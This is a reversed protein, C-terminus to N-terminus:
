KEVDGLWAVASADFVPGDKCVRSISRVGESITACACVVCAGVGCAMREELSVQCPVGFQACLSAVATLMAPSGCAIVAEHGGSELLKKLPVAVTGHIGFSGDDTTIYVKGCVSEFENKLIVADAGSFGLVATVAAKASRAAFLMPPSGAGGGVVIIDGDPLCYGNGLPGHIDLKQGPTRESLWKTGAGKVEFIFKLEGGSAMCVSIPRRLLNENGCKINFFQGARIEEEALGGCVADIAYLKGTLRECSVVECMFVDPM